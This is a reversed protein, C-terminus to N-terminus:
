PVTPWTQDRPLFSEQSVQLLSLSSFTHAPVSTPSFTLRRRVSMSVRVCFCPYLDYHVSCMLSILLCVPKTLFLQLTMWKKFTLCMCVRCDCSFLCLLEHAYLHQMFRVYLYFLNLFYITGCVFIVSLDDVLEYTCLWFFFVFSVDVQVFFM